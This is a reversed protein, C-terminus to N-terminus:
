KKSVQLGETQPSYHDRRNGQAEYGDEPSPKKDPLAEKDQGTPLHPQLGQNKEKRRPLRLYLSLQQPLM